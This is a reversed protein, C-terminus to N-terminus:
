GGGDTATPHLPQYLGIDGLGPVQLARLLGWPEEVIEGGFVAGRSELEAVTTGLDDCMLYLEHRGASPPGAPHVAVEGPPQSFILWGGGADVHPWGLVDRLFARAADADEAYLITHAGIIM